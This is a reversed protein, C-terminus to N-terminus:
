GDIVAECKKCVRMAKGDETRTIQIRTTKGCKPCVLM